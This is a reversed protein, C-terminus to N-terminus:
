IVGREALRRYHMGLRTLRCGTSHVAAHWMHEQGVPEVLSHRNCDQLKRYVEHRGQDFPIHRLKESMEGRDRECSPDLPYIDDPNKFWVPLLRLIEPAVKPKVQRLQVFSHVNAKYVPRQDWPGLTQDVHSYISAPTVRGLIDSAGGKLADVVLGTFLGGRSSGIASQDRQAAALITLGNSLTATAASAGAGAMEGAFGAHCSDLIIVSSAIRTSASSVLALITPLSIGWNPRHGDSSCVFGINSKDALVGHGAFFLLACEADGSFLKEIEDNMMRSTVPQENSTLRRVSFNLSDDDNRALVSEMDRADKVCGPLPDGSDYHEVGIVLAKKKVM